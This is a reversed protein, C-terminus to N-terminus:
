TKQVNHQQAELWHDQWNKQRIPDNDAIKFFLAQGSYLPELNYHCHTDFILM